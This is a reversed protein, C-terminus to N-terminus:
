FAKILLNKVGGGRKEKVEKEWLTQVYTVIEERRLIEYIKTM